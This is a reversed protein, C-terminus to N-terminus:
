EDSKVPAAPAATSAPTAPAPITGIYAAIAAIQEPTYTYQFGPMRATGHSITGAVLEANGDLTTKSLVPGYQGSTIVPKTHCVGCSQTFLRRGLLQTDNLAAGSSGAAGAQALAIQPLATLATMLLFARPQLKMVNEGESLIKVFRRWRLASSFRRM